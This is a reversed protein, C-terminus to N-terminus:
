VFDEYTLIDHNTCSEGPSVRGVKGQTDWFKKEFDTSKGSWKHCQIVNKFAM